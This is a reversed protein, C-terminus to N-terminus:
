SPQLVLTPQLGPLYHWVAALCRGDLEAAEYLSPPIAAIWGFFVVMHFRATELHEVFDAGANGLRHQRALFDAFDEDFKTCQSTRRNSVVLSIWLWSSGPLSPPFFIPV